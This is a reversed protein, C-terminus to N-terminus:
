ENKLTELITLLTQNMEADRVRGAWYTNLKNFATINVYPKHNDAVVGVFAKRTIFGRKKFENIIKASEAMLKVEEDIPTICIKEFVKM